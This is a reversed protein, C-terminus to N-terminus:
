MTWPARREARRYNAEMLSYVVREWVSVQTGSKSTRQFENLFVCARAPFSTTAVSSAIGLIVVALTTRWGSLRM